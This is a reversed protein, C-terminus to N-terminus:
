GLAASSRTERSSASARKGSSRPTDNSPRLLGYASADSANADPRFQAGAPIVPPNAPITNLTIARIPSIAFVTTVQTLYEPQM